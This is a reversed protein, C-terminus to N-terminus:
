IYRKVSTPDPHPYSQRNSSPTQPLPSRALRIECEAIPEITLVVGGERWEFPVPAGGVRVDSPACGLGHVLVRFRSAGSAMRKRDAQEGKAASLALETRM